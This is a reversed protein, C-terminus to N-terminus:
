KLGFAHCYLAVALYGNDHSLSIVHPLPVQNRPNILIPAGPKEYGPMALTPRIIDAEIHHKKLLKQALDRVSQSQQQYTSLNPIHTIQSNIQPWYKDHECAMCHVVNTEPWHYKLSLRQQEFYIHGTLNEIKDSCLLNELTDSSIRYTIPSFRLESQIRQVAKFSAEKAAWLSWLFHNPNKSQALHAQEQRTLIRQIFRPNQYKKEDIRFDVIDNGIM